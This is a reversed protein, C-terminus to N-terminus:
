GRPPTIIGREAICSAAEACVAPNFLYFPQTTCSATELSIGDDNPCPGVRPQNPASPGGEPRELSFLLPVSFGYSM